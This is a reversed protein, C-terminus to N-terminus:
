FKVYGEADVNGAKRQDQFYGLKLGFTMEFHPSDVLKKWDGGWSFGYRKFIKVVEMWDAVNDGDWDKKLNWEAKGDVLLCFDLALGWNHWSQGGKANTVINGPKTRGQAYLADQEAITRLTYTIRPKSKGTLANYAEMFAARAKERIKPHLKSIRDLSLQDMYNFKYFVRTTKM